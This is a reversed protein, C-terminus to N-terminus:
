TAFAILKYGTGFVTEIKVRSPQIKKRIHAIHADVTRDAVYVRDGWIHSIIEERSIIKNKHKSLLTFIRFELSTFNIASQSQNRELYLRQEAGNVTLDEIKYHDVQQQQLSLKKLKADIRLKLEIPDYPKSIFDDAGYTFAMAKNALAVKSSVIFIAMQQKHTESIEALFRLGDGDPLEIDLIVAAFRGEKLARTAQELSSCGTVKYEKLINQLILQCEPSDEITLISKPEMPPM